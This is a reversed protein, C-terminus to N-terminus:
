YSVGVPKGSMESMLRGRARINYGFRSFLVNLANIVATEEDPLYIWSCLNKEAWSLINHWTHLNLSGNATAATAFTVESSCGNDWTTVKTKIAMLKNQSGLIMEEHKNLPALYVIPGNDWAEMEKRRDTITAFSEWDRTGAPIDRFDKPLRRLTAIARKLKRHEQSVMAEAIAQQEPKAKSKRKAM